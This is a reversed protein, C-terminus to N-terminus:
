IGYHLGALLLVAELVTVVVVLAITVPVTM